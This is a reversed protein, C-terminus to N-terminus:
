YAAQDKIEEVIERAVDRANSDRYVGASGWYPYGYAGGMFSTDGTQYSWGGEGNAGVTLLIGPEADEEWPDDESVFTDVDIESKVAKVLKEVDGITPWKGARRGRGRAAGGVRCRTFQGRRNRCSSM